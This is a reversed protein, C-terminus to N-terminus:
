GGSREGESEREEERGEGGEVSAKLPVQSFNTEITYL